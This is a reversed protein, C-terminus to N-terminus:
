SQMQRYERLRAEFTVGNWTELDCISERAPLGVQEVAFSAAVSGYTMAEELDGSQQLAVAFAGLFINGAGTTDVIKNSDSGHFPPFWKCETTRSLTMAGHEGARVVIIMSHEKGDGNAELCQRAYKEIERRNFAPGSTDEDGFLKALELHNPSFVDVLKCASLHAGRNEKRCHMPAPEWVVSPNKSVEVNQPGRLSLLEVRWKELDEPNALFHFAKAQLM